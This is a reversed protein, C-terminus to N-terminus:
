RIVGSYISLIEAGNSVEFAKLNGCEVTILEEAWSALRSIDHSAIISVFAGNNNRKLINLYNLLLKLAQDDLNASPEDLFVYNPNKLLSIALATKMKQGRSIEAVTKNAIQDIQWYNLIEQLNIKQESLKTFFRINELVTLEQYIQLSHGLYTINAPTLGYEIRGGEPTKLGALIKLLTTKGSGNAGVLLTNKGTSFIHNLNEFIVQAPYTVKLNKISLNSSM